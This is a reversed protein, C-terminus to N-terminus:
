QKSLYDLNVLLISCVIFVIFLICYIWIDVKSPWADKESGYKVIFYFTAAMIISFLWMVIFSLIKGLLLITIM